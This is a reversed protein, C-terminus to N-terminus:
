LSIYKEIVNKSGSCDPGYIDFVSNSKRINEASKSIGGM